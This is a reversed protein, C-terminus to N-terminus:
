PSFEFAGIDLQAAVIRPTAGARRRQPQHTPVISVLRGERDRYRPSGVGADKCPSDARLRFDGAELNVCGPADGVISGVCGPPAELGKPLFNNAGEIRGSGNWDFLRRGAGCFVNNFLMLDTTASSHSFLFLDNPQTSVFTNNILTLTGRAVGTGDGVGLLRRQGGAAARKVVVNGMWLTNHENGSAVEVSYGGDEEIWNYALVAHECRSKFNQAETSHHIYCYRVILSQSNVYHNHTANGAAGPPKGNYATECGELITNVAEHTSFWGNDNHHSYCNRFTVNTGQIYAAAANNSFATGPRGSGRAHRFELNEVVWDHTEPWLYLLGRQVNVASGDLVPRQGDKLVGRLTIPREPTGSRRVSLRPADLLYVGPQLLLVDGPNARNELLDKLTALDSVTRTEGQAVGALTVGAM